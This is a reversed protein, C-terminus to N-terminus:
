SVAIKKNKQKCGITLMILITIALYITYDRGECVQVSSFLCLRSWVVVKYYGLVISARVSKFLVSFSTVIYIVPFVKSLSLISFFLLTKLAIFIIITLNLIIFDFHTKHSSITGHPLSCLTCSLLFSYSIFFSSKVMNYSKKIMDLLYAKIKYWHYDYMKM